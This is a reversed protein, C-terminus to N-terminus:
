KQWNRSFGKQQSEEIGRHGFVQCADLAEQLAAFELDTLEVEAGGLNELIRDKNKSGPIPVVNEYKVIRLHVQLRGVQGFIGAAKQFLQSHALLLDGPQPILQRFLPFNGNEPPRYHGRSLWKIRLLESSSSFSFVKPVSLIFLLFYFRGEKRNHIWLMRHEFLIMWVELCSLLAIIANDCRWIPM